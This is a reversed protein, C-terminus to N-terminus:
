SEKRLNGDYFEFRNHETPTLLLLGPNLEENRTNQFMYSMWTQEFPRDWKESLFMKKNGNKSVIQPWNSYYVEGNIFGLGNHIKINKFITKPSDPDTGRLPLNTKEPFYANRVHQPVNYWSWQTSNDGFFETFSLKLFDFKEKNIISLSKQYLNPTYRNFGNKCVEGKKPYFFMDDEFFFYFDFENDNSHEAIFQRGGCIGLNDKKIHTFNHQNCLEIYKETTSLDSSNDLLFKKPKNIFDSDYELMSKILTEFQKPSNFTIVYLATNEPNLFSTDNKIKETEYNKLEEFFSWVLGNGSIEFKHVLSPHRHTIITFLCEDAGMYGERLTTEMVSYYINNLEHIKSKSGGFFGGRCVYDVFDTNCYRAMATREFGHIEENADYPYALHIFKGDNKIVFNNLNDLVLDKQFYGKNVTSTLGGDVWFFYESNFPNTIASDNLMFMKTFMMPNYYKLAAQPSEKLWGAFSYWKEDTRIEQIRDFFPNWSEFDKIEKIFIKTPKEGRIRIVDEELDRPIWICMQADTELMEFFREKYYSFDRKAWGDLEGRGMDWLGTVITINKNM